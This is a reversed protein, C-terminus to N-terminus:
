WQKNGEEDFTRLPQLYGPTLSTGSYKEIKVLLSNFPSFGDGVFANGELTNVSGGRDIGTEDDLDVWNGEGLSVVGPMIVETLTVRRLIKGHASQILCTDDDALGLPLADIPNMLMNDAHIERIARVNGYTSHARAMHHTTILQFPYEGKEKTEWNAFSDEYGELAPVYKPLPDLETAGFNAIADALSQCYIEFKGSETKLPHGEPDKEFDSWPSTAYQDDIERKVQYGGQNMLQKFPIRGDHPECALGFEDIDEQTVQALKETAIKPNDGEIVVTSNALRTRQSRTRELPEFVDMDLNLRKVLDRQWEWEPRAEFLPEIVQNAWILNEQNAAYEQYNGIEWMSCAPLVIDAFSCDATMFLDTAMAFEIKGEARLAEFGRNANMMSNLNCFAADSFWAKINVDREGHIFDPVKGTLVAEWVRTYPLGYFKNPDYTGSDFKGGARPQTCIPNEPQKIVDGGLTVLRNGGFATKATAGCISVEGGRQGINGSGCIWGVTLFLQTWNLGNHSRAPALSSKLLMPKVTGMQYALSEIEDVPTGCIESAWEPTKPIGDYVGLIYDKFNEGDEHGEPMHRADFGVVHKDIWDQDYLDNSIIYHAIGCLLAADTGPRVPIWQDCLAQATANFQPNVMIIKAGNEKAFTYYWANQGAASWAPNSGWLVILKSHMISMRDGGATSGVMKASPIKTAGYSQQGWYTVCGGFCNLLWGSSRWTGRYDQLGGSLFAENGYTEKIRVLEDAIIDIAEDWSIREWEDRGRLEPHYDKGGPQWHKRKLPFKLRDDQYLWQRAFRGRMCGRQQPYEFSDPHSDDTKQRVIVGDVVYGQNVCKGGCNYYCGGFRWEGESDRSQAQASNVSDFACEGAVGLAAAAAAAAQVFSRRSLTAKNEHM